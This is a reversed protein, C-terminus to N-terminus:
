NSNGTALTQHKPSTRRGTFPRRADNRHCQVNNAGVGSDFDHWLITSM